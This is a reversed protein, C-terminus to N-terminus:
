LAQWLVRSCPFASRWSSFFRPWASGSCGPPVRSCQWCRALLSFRLSRQSVCLRRDLAV